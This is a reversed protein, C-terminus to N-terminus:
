RGRSMGRWLKRGLLSELEAIDDAYYRCLEDRFEPRM